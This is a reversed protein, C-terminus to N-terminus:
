VAHFQLHYTKANGQREERSTRTTECCLLSSMPGDNAFCTKSFPCKYPNVSISIAYRAPPKKPAAVSVTLRQENKGSRYMSIFHCVATAIQVTRMAAACKGSSCTLTWSSSSSTMPFFRPLEPNKADCNHLSLLKQWLASRRRCITEEEDLPM